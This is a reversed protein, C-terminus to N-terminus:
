AVDRQDDIRQTVNPLAPRWHPRRYSGGMLDSRIAFDATAENMAVVTQSLAAVRWIPAPDVDHAKPTLPDVFFVLIDIRGEAVLAGLEMDGGLPGSRLCDVRLGTQSMILRGTNGTATLAHRSLLKENAFAWAALQPKASDHASLAIRKIDDM